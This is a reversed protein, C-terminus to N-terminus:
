VHTRGPDVVVPGFAIGTVRDPRQHRWRLELLGTALPGAPVSREDSTVAAPRRCSRADGSLRGVTGVVVVTVPLFTHSLSTRAPQLHDRREEAKKAHTAARNASPASRGSAPM